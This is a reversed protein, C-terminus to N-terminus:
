KEKQSFIKNILSVYCLSFSQLWSVQTWIGSKLLNRLNKPAETVRPSTILVLTHFSKAFLSIGVFTRIVAAKKWCCGLLCVKWLNQNLINRPFATDYCIHIQNSVLFDQLVHPLDAETGWFHPVRNKFDLGWRSMVWWCNPDVRFNSDLSYGSAKKQQDAGTAMNKIEDLELTPQVGFTDHTIVRKWWVIHSRSILSMFRRPALHTTRVWRHRSKRADELVRDNYVTLM